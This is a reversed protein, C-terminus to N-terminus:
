NYEYFILLRHSRTECYSIVGPEVLTSIAMVVIIKWSPGKGFHSLGAESTFEFEKKGMIARDQVARKAHATTKHAAPKSFAV